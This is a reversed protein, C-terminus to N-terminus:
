RELHEGPGLAEPSPKSLLDGPNEFSEMTRSVSQTLDALSSSINSTELTIVEINSRVSKGLEKTETEVTKAASGIEKVTVKLEGSVDNLNKDLSATIGELEESFDALKDALVSFRELSKALTESNDNLSTTFSSLNALIQSLHTKNDESFFTRMREVLMDFNELLHPVSQALQELETEGEPIIPEDEGPHVQTLEPSAQTSGILEVWALGTLLNRKIVARTDERVPAEKQLEIIVKVQEINQESIEFSSVSGVKIGKVTVVSDIQLGSLSQNQFYIGFKRMDKEDGANSLWLVAIILFVSFIIVTAGVLAYKAQSEM